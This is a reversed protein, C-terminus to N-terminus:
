SCQHTHLDQRVAQIGHNESHGQGVHGMDTVSAVLREWLDTGSSGAVVFSFTKNEVLPSESNAWLKGQDIDTIISMKQAVVRAIDHTYQMTTHQVTDHPLTSEVVLLAPWCQRKPPLDIFSNRISLNQIYHLSLAPRHSRSSIFVEPAKLKYRSTAARSTTSCVCRSLAPMRSKQQLAQIGLPVSASVHRTFYVGSRGLM